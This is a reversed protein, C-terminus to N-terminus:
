EKEIYKDSIWAVMQGRDIPTWGDIIPVNLLDGKKAVDLVVYQTGPGSRINVSGGTVRARSGTNTPEGDGTDLIADIAALEEQEVIGDVGLGAKTQLHKVASETDSGFEGDAGYVGVAYGVDSTAEAVQILLKQLEVVDAGVDGNKLPRDGLLYVKDPVPTGGAKSGNELICWTHGKTKTVQIDGRMLYADQTNYKDATLKEFWGTRVLTTALTATYFDPVTKDIGMKVLAYQVCVRILRACDTEVKKSTKSPDFGVDKVNDWLTQNEIQDYGIDPNACALEMAEAIYEAMGPVTCRLTIWGKSHRYWDRIFVEKGNQEGAEGRITGRESISANGIKVAM